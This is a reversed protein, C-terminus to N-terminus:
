EASVDQSHDLESITVKATPDVAPQQPNTPGDATSYPMDPVDAQISLLVRICSGFTRENQSEHYSLDLIEYTGHATLYVARVWADYLARVEAYQALQQEPLAVDAAHIYVTTLEHTTAISRPPIGPDRPPGLTGFKKSRDDGPLWVVRRITTPQSDRQRKGFLQPAVCGDDAFVAAVGAILHPVAFTPATM